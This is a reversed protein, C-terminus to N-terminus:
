GRTVLSHFRSSYPVLVPTDDYISILNSPRKVLQFAAAAPATYSSGMIFKGDIVIIGGSDGYIGFSSIGSGSSVDGIITNTTGPLVQLFAGYASTGSGGAVNGTISTSTFAQVIIGFSSNDGGGTINGISIFKDCAIQLGYANGGISNGGIIDGTIRCTDAVLGNIGYRSSGAVSSGKVNGTVTLNDAANVFLGHDLGAEINGNVVIDKGPADVFVCNNECVGPLIDANITRDDDIFFYGVDSTDDNRLGDCTINQNITVIHGSLDAIVGVDGVGPPVGGVWTGAASWNGTANSLIDAM